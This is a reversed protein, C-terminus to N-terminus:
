SLRRVLDEVRRKWDQFHPSKEWLARAESDALVRRLAKRARSVLVSDADGQQHIWSQLEDPVDGSERALQCAILEGAVMARVATGNEVYESIEDPVAYIADALVQVDEAKLIEAGFDAGDDDDFPNTSSAGM